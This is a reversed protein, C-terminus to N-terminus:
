PMINARASWALDLTKRHEDGAKLNRRRALQPGGVQWVACSPTLDCRLPMMWCDFKTVGQSVLSSKPLSTNRKPINIWLWLKIGPM